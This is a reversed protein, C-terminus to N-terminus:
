RLSSRRRRADKCPMSSVPKPSVRLYIGHSYWTRWRRGLHPKRWQQLNKMHAQDLGLGSPIVHEHHRGDSPSRGMTGDITEGNTQTSRSCKIPTRAVVLKSASITRGLPRSPPVQAFVPPTARCAAAAVTSVTKVHHAGGEHPIPSGEGKIGKIHGVGDTFIGDRPVYGAGAQIGTEVCAEGFDVRKCQVGKCVKRPGGVELIAHALVRMAAWHEGRRRAIKWLEELASHITQGKGLELARHVARGAAGNSRGRKSRRSSCCAAKNKGGTGPASLDPTERKVAKEHAEVIPLRVSYPGNGRM